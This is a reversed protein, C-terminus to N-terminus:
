GNSLIINRKTSLEIFSYFDLSSYVITSILFIFVSIVEHEGERNYLLCNHWVLEIDKLIELIILELPTCQSSDSKLDHPFKNNYAGKSINAKITGLDMPRKVIQRYDPVERVSVPAAFVYGFDYDLLRQIVDQIKNLVNIKKFFIDEGGKTQEYSKFVLALKEFLEFGSVTDENQETSDITCRPCEWQDPLDSKNVDLCTHHFARPCKDCCLLGGSKKCILCYDVNGDEIDVSEPEAPQSPEELELLSSERVFSGEPTFVTRYDDELSPDLNIADGIESPFECPPVKAVTIKAEQLPVALPKSSKPSSPLAVAKSVKARKAVKPPSHKVPKSRKNNTKPKPKVVSKPRTSGPQSGDKLAFIDDIITEKLGLKQRDCEKKFTSALGAM